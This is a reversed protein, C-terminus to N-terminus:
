KNLVNVEEFMDAMNRANFKVLHKFIGSAQL